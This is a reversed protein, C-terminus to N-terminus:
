SFFCKGAPYVLTARLKFYKKALFLWIRKAITTERAIAAEM